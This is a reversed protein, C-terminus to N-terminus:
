DVAYEAGGLVGLSVRCQSQYISRGQQPAHKMPPVKFWTSFPPFGGHICADEMGIDTPGQAFPRAFTSSIGGGICIGILWSSMRAVSKAKPMLARTPTSYTPPM